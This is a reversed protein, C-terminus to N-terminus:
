PLLELFDCHNPRFVSFDRRDFTYLRTINLREALAMLATDTYDFQASKYQEMIQQMRIMDIDTLDIIEFAARTAAFVRVARQYNIRVLVMYFLESLVPAPVIRTEQINSRLAISARDHNVDRSFAFALLVSTDVLVKM